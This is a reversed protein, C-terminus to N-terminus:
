CLFKEMSQFLESTFVNKFNAQWLLLWLSLVLVINNNLELMISNGAGPELGFVEEGSLCPSLCIESFHELCLLM